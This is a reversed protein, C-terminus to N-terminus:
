TRCQTRTSLKTACTEWRCIRGSRFCCTCLDVSSLGSWLTMTVQPIYFLDKPVPKFLQGRYIPWLGGIIRFLSSKGCGNPGTILLHMGRPIRVSISEVLVDNNPTIIPVDVLEIQACCCVFLSPLFLPFFFFPPPPPSFFFLFFFFFLLSSLSLSLFLSPHFIFCRTSM